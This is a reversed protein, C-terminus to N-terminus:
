FALFATDMTGLCTSGTNCLHGKGSFDQVDLPGQRPPAPVDSIRQLTEPDPPPLQLCPRGTKARALLREMAAGFEEWSLM